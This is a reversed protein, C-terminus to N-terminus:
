LSPVNGSYKLVVCDHTVEILLQLKPVCKNTKNKDVGGPQLSDSNSRTVASFTYLQNALRRFSIFLLAFIPSVQHCISAANDVYAEASAWFHVRVIMNIWARSKQRVCSLLQWKPFGHFQPALGLSGSLHHLPLSAPTQLDPSGDTRLALLESPWFLFYVFLPREATIM